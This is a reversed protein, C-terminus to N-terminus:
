FEFEDVLPNKKSARFLINVTTYSSYGMNGMVQEKTYGSALMRIACTARLVGPSVWPLESMTAAITLDKIYKSKSKTFKYENVLDAASSGLLVTRINGAPDIVQIKTSSIYTITFMEEFRLGVLIILKYFAQSEKSIAGLNNILRESQRLTLSRPEYDKARPSKISTLMHPVGAFLYYSKISFIKRRITSSSDGRALRQSLWSKVLSDLNSPAPWLTIGYAQTFDRLDRAYGKITSPSRGLEILHEEYEKILAEV